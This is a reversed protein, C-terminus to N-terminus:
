AALVLGRHPRRHRLLEGGADDLAIPEPDALGLRLHVSVGFSFHAPSAPPSATPSPLPPTQEDEGGALVLTVVLVAFLVSAVVIVLWRTSM